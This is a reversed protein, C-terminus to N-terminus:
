AVLRDRVLSRREGWARMDFNLVSAVVCLRLSICVTLLVKVIIWLSGAFGYSFLKYRGQEGTRWM